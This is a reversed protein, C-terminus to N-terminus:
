QQGPRSLCRGNLSRRDSMHRCLDAALTEDMLVLLEGDPTVFVIGADTLRYSRANAVIGVEQVLGTM